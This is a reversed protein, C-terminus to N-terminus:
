GSAAKYHSQVSGQMCGIRKAAVGRPIPPFFGIFPLPYCSNAARTSLWVGAPRAEIHAYATALYRGGALEEPM